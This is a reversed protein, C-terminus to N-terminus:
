GLNNMTATFNIRTGNAPDVAASTAHDVNYILITRNAASYAGGLAYAAVVAPVQLAPKCRILGGPYSDVLTIQYTGVATRTVTYDRGRINTCQGSLLFTRPMEDGGAPAGTALINAGTGATQVGIINDTGALATILTEVNTVTTAAAEFHIIMESTDGYHNVEITEQDAGGSFFAPNFEDGLVTLFGALTDVANVVLEGGYAGVAAEVLAATSVGPEFIIYTIGAVTDDYVIEGAAAPSAGILCVEWLDGTAGLATVGGLEFVTNIALPAVARSTDTACDFQADAYVADDVLQLTIKRDDLLSGEGVNTAEVVTDLNPLTETAGSLYARNAIAGGLLPFCDFSGQIDVRGPLVNVRNGRKNKSM